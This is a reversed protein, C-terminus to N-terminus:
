SRIKGNRAKLLKGLTVPERKVPTLNEPPCSWRDGVIGWNSIRKILTCSANWYNMKVYRVIGHASSVTSRYIYLEGVKLQEKKM